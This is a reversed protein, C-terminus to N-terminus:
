REPARRSRTRSHVRAGCRHELRHPETTSDNRGDGKEAKLVHDALGDGDIDVLGLEFGSVRRLTTDGGLTFNLDPTFFPSLPIFWTFAFGITPLESYTGNAEVSDVSPSGLVAGLLQSIGPVSNQLWPKTVDAPWPVVGTWELEPGFAYGQNIRVFFRDDTSSKRVYDPLGDGNVDVMTVATAAISSEWSVTAEFIEDFGGGVNGQVSIATTRRVKDPSAVNGPVEVQGLLLDLSQNRWRGVPVCDESAAFRGGLNLRVLLGTPCAGNGADRRVADPLGDGNVDVLERETTSLNLGMGGGISPFMGTVAQVIGEDSIKRQPASIGLGLSITFDDSRRLDASGSAPRAFLGHIDTIKIGDDGV